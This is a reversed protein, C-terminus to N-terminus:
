VLIDDVLKIHIFRVLLKTSGLLKGTRVLECVTWQNLLILNTELVPLYSSLLMKHDCSRVLILKHVFLLGSVEHRGTELSYSLLRYPAKCGLDFLSVRM